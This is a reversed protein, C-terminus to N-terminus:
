NEGENKKKKYECLQFHFRTLYSFIKKYQDEKQNVKLESKKLTM